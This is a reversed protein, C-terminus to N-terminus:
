VIVAFLGFVNVNHSFGFFGVFGGRFGIVIRCELFGNHYPM